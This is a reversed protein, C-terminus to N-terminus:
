AFSAMLRLFERRGLKKRLEKNVAKALARSDPGIVVSIVSGEVNGFVTERIELDSMPNLRLVACVVKWLFSKRHWRMYFIYHAARVGIAVRYLNQRIIMRKQLNHFPLKPQHLQPDSLFVAIDVIGERALYELFKEARPEIVGNSFGVPRSHLDVRVAHVREDRFFEWYDWVVPVGHIPLDDFLSPNANKPHFEIPAGCFSSLEKQLRLLHQEDDLANRFLLYLALVPVYVMGDLSTVPFHGSNIM